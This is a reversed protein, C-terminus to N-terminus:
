VTSEVNGRRSASYQRVRLSKASARKLFADSVVMRLSDERALERIGKALAIVERLREGCHDCEFLHEEIAAEDSSTLANLWYDGLIAVEIPNSCKLPRNENRSNM